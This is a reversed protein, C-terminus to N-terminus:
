NLSGSVSAIAYEKPFKGHFDKFCNNFFSYNSFGTADMVEAINNQGEKLIQAARKLRIVRIFHKPPYDTLANLKRYLQTRSVSLEMALLEVNLNPNSIHKEIVDIAKQLFKQDANEIAIERPQLKFEKSFKEVMQQRLRLLNEVRSKLVISDFPKSIFDDVGKKLSSLHTMIDNKATLLIIPIHSTAINTRLSSVLDIGSMNPMMVDSIIIDPVLETAIKVGERGDKAELTEYSDSFIEAIFKRLDNNDEVILISKKSSKSKESDLTNETVEEELELSEVYNWTNSESDGAFLENDNYSQIDIPISVKFSAGNLKGSQVSISGKHLETLEKALALGIGSGEANSGPVRYFRNFINKIEKQQIGIGNDIVTIEFYGNDLTNTQILVWGNTRSFKLANSLLNSFIKEMKEHDFFAYVRKEKPEFKIAIQKQAALNEFSAIIGKLFENIDGEKVKLNMNATDIKRLDLLHNVLQLLKLSNKRIACLQKNNKLEAKLKEAVGIILTLPTKFEHSINTFFQLKAQDAEHVKKAMNEIELKQEKLLFNAKKKRRYGVYLVAGLIGILIFGFVFFNRYMKEQALDENAKTKELEREVQIKKFDFYTELKALNDIENANKISDSLINSLQLYDYAKRFQKNNYYITSLEFASKQQGKVYVDQKAINLAKNHFDIAHSLKGQHKYLTALAQFSHCKAMKSNSSDALEFSKQFYKEANKFDKSFLFVNGINILVDHFVIAPCVDCNTANCKQYYFLADKYNKNQYNVDGLKMYASSMTHRHKTENGVDLAKNFFVLALSDNGLLHHMDGIQSYIGGKNKVKRVKNLELIKEYYTLAMSYNKQISNFYDAIKYYAKITGKINEYKEALEMALQVYYMAKNKDEQLMYLGTLDLYVFVKDEENKYKPLSSIILKSLTDAYQKQGQKIFHWYTGSALNLDGNEIFSNYSRFAHKEAEIINGQEFNIIGLHHSSWAIRFLINNRLGIDLSIQYLEKSKNLEGQKRYGLAAADYANAILSSDNINKIKELALLGFKLTENKEAYELGWALECLVSVSDATTKCKPLQNRLSDLFPNKQAEIQLVSALIIFSFIFLCRLYM